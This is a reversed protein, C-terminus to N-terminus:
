EDDPNDARNRYYRRRRAYELVHGNADVMVEYNALLSTSSPVRELEVLEMEIRWGQDQRQVASVADVSRGIVGEVERRAVEVVARVGGEPGLRPRGNSGESVM